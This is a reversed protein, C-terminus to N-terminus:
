DALAQSKKDPLTFHQIQELIISISLDVKTTKKKQKKLKWVLWSQDRKSSSCLGILSQFTVDNQAM